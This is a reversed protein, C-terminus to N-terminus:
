LKTHSSSICYGYWSSATQQLREPQTVDLQAEDELLLYNKQDAWEMIRRTELRGGNNKEVKASVKDGSLLPFIQKFVQVSVDM